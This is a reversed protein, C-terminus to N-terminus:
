PVKPDNRVIKRVIFKEINGDLCLRTRDNRPITMQKRELTKM